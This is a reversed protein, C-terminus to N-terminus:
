LVLTFGVHFTICIPDPHLQFPTPPTPWKAKAKPSINTEKVFTVCLPLWAFALSVLLSGLLWNMCSRLM